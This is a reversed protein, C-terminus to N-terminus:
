IQNRSPPCDPCDRSENSGPDKGGRAQRKRRVDDIYQLMAHHAESRLYPDRIHLLWTKRREVAIWFLVLIMMGGIFISYIAADLTIVGALALLLTILAAAWIYRILRSIILTQHRITWIALRAIRNRTSKRIHNPM